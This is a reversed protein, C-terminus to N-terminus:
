NLPTYGGLRRGGALALAAAAADVCGGLFRADLSALSFSKVASWSASIWSAKARKAVCSCGSKSSSFSPAMFVSSTRRQKIYAVGFVEVVWM